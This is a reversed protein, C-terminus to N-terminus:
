LANFLEVLPVFFTKAEAVDTKSKKPPAKLSECRDSHEEYGGCAVDVISQFINRVFEQITNTAKATCRGKTM